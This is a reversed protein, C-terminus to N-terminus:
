IRLGIASPDGGRAIVQDRVIKFVMATLTDGAAIPLPAGSSRGATVREGGMALIPVVQGFNGPVVGGSHFTPLKPASISNGGIAPVWDPVTWSLSGVTNNWARAIANFGEIFPRSIANAVSSFTNALRDPLAKVWNWVNEAATQIASWSNKWATQFWTTKTAVLVIAAVLATIGVIIWTIPSALQTLNLLRQAVAATRDAAAKALTAVRANKTALALLDAAGTVGMIIAGYKEMEAGVKGIGSDEGFATTLAGGVDGIGGSAQAASGGVRDLGDGMRKAAMETDDAMKGADKGVSAFAQSLDQPEGAFTLTIQNSM